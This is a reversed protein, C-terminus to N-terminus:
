GNRRSPVDEVIRNMPTAFQKYFDAPTMDNSRCFEEVTRDTIGAALARRKWEAPVTDAALTNEHSAPVPPAGGGNSRLTPDMTSVLQQAREHAIEDVHDSRVMKVVMALNDLTRLHAPVQAIKANIEPGFRRFDDAYQQRAIGVNASAALEVATNQQPVLRGLTDRLQKGSIYDDDAFDFGQPATNVPPTAAESQPRETVLVEAIGLIQEPTM